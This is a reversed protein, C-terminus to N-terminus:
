AKALQGGAKDLWMQLSELLDGQSFSCSEESFLQSSELRNLLEDLVTGFRPPLASRLAQCAQAQASWQAVSLQGARLQALATGLQSWQTHADMTM